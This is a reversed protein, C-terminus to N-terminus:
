YNIENFFHRGMGNLEYQIEKPLLAEYTQVYTAPVYM